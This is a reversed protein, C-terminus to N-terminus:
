TAAVLDALSVPRFEDMGFLESYGRLIERPCAAAMVCADAHPCPITTAQFTDEGARHHYRTDRYETGPLPPVVSRVHLWRKPTVGAATMERFLICPAIGGMMKIVFEQAAFDEPAAAVRPAAAAVVDTQRPASSYYRDGRSEFSPYPLHAHAPHGHRKAYEWLDVLAGQNVRTIATLLHVSEAGVRARLNELAKMVLDFAGARAVVRDHTAADMAYLPVMFDTGKPAADCVAACFAEDALRTCPSFIQVYDYGLKTAFGITDVVRSFTLPDYGNVRVRRVGRKRHEYLDRCLSAFAEDGGDKPDGTEKVSCFNCQQGCETTISLNLVESTEPDQVALPAGANQELLATVEHASPALLATAAPSANVELREPVTWTIGPHDHLELMFGVLAQLSESGSIDGMGTILGVSLNATRVHAMDDGRRPQVQFMARRGNMQHRFDLVMFPVDSKLGRVQTSPVVDEFVWGGSAVAGLPLHASLLDLIGERSFSLERPTTSRGMAEAITASPNAALARDVAGSIAHIADGLAARVAPTRDTVRGRYRVSCHELRRFVPLDNRKTVVIEIWDGEQLRRLRVSVDDGDLRVSECSWGGLEEGLPMLAASPEATTM